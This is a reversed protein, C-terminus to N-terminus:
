RRALARICLMDFPVPSKATWTEVFCDLEDWILAQRYEPNGPRHISWRSIHVMTKTKRTTAAQLMCLEAKAVSGYLVPSKKNRVRDSKM